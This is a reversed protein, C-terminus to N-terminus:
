SFTIAAEDILNSKAKHGFLACLRYCNEVLAMESLKPQLLLHREASM